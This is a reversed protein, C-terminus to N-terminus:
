KLVELKCHLSRLGEALKEVGSDLLDNHSLDLVTLNSSASSLVSSTLGKCSEESLECWSLRHVYKDDSIRFFRYWVCWETRTPFNKSLVSEYKIYKNSLICVTCIIDCCDRNPYILPTGRPETNPGKRNIISTM